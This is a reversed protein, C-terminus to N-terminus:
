CYFTILMFTKKVLFFCPGSFKWKPRALFSQENELYVFVFDFVNQVFHYPFSYCGVFNLRLLFALKPHCVMKLSSSEELCLDVSHTCM